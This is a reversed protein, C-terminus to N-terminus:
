VDSSLASGVGIGENGEDGGLPVGGMGPNFPLRSLKRPVGELGLVGRVSAFGPKLCTATGVDGSGLRGSLGNGASGGSTPSM